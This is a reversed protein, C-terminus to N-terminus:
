RARWPELSQKIVIAWSGLQVGPGRRVEISMRSTGVGRARRWPRISVVQIASDEDQTDPVKTAQICAVEGSVLVLRRGLWGGNGKHNM